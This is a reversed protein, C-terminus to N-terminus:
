ELYGLDSLRATLVRMEEASYVEERTVARTSPRAPETAYRIPPDFLGEVVRGEMDDPIRVGLMALLTPTTDVLDASLRKGAAIGPGVVALVGDDRHTGEMRRPSFWTVPTRGRIKRVVSLGDRPVLLLDPLWPRDARSCRYLEEPKHVAKYINITRGGPDVCTASLFCRRLEDRLPEYEDAPVIGTEQRDALNVYLFGGMGAHMVCARTRSFDVALDHALDITGTAFKSQQKRRFWRHLLHGARTRTQAGGERLQLYGWNMLLRNPQSRGDLSGHGHDSMVLVHARHERAYGLLGGLAADLEGFCQETLATRRPWRGRNRADLYKWTKHQLNDVLKFVIMLADWGYREGCFRAVEVGQHFSRSIAAVNEAVLRDGGFTKRRWQNKFTYDPWRRLVEGKLEPPYTFEVQTGPTEFGSIMFGHVPTPPYTMPVNLSGVRFGKDGLIDWISRLGALCNTTNFSLKHTRVDYREFDIIGHTGPNKGTMFTTWAAPTIPPVTSRLIGSTGGQVLGQLHPMVGRGMLPDLVDWTAGDLGIILVREAVAPLDRVPQSPPSSKPQAAAEPMHITKRAITIEQQALVNRVASDLAPNM